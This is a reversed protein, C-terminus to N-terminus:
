QLNGIEHLPANNQPFCLNLTNHRYTHQSLNVMHKQYPRGHKTAVFDTLDTQKSPVTTIGLAILLFWETLIIIMIVGDSGGGGNDDGDDDDDDDEDDEDPTTTIMRMRM